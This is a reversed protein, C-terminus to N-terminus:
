YQCDAYRDLDSLAAELGEKYEKTTVDVGAQSHGLILSCLAGTIAEFCACEECMEEGNRGESYCTSELGTSFIVMGTSRTTAARGKQIITFSIASDITIVIKKETNEM